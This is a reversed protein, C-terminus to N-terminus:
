QKKLEILTRRSQIISKNNVGQGKTMRVNLTMDGNSWMDFDSRVEEIYGTKGFHLIGRKNSDKITEALPLILQFFGNEVTKVEVKKDESFVSVGEIPKATEDDVIFGVVVMTNPQRISTVYESSLERCISIPELNFNVNLEEDNFSFHSSMQRYNKATLIIDYTGNEVPIDIKNSANESCIYKYVIEKNERQSLEVTEPSIGVGTYFDLIRLNLKSSLKGTDQEYGYIICDNNQNNTNNDSSKQDIQENNTTVAQNQTKNGISCANNLMIIAMISLLLENKNFNM